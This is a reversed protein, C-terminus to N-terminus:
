SFETGYQDTVKRETIKKICIQDDYGTWKQVQSFIANSLRGRFSQESTDKSDFSRPRKVFKTTTKIKIDM